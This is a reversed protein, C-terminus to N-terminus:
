TYDDVDGDVEQSTFAGGYSKMADLVKTYVESLNKQSEIQGTKAKLLKIKEEEMERKQTERTSGLELFFNMTQSSATGERLQKEALDMALSICQKERAEPTLAPRMLVTSDSSNAVRAKGM